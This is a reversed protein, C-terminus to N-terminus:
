EAPVIPTRVETNAWRWVMETGNKEPLPDFTITFQEVPSSLETSPVTYNMVDKEFDPKFYGWKGLEENLGIKWEKENPIAYLRYTGAAVRKGKIEVDNEFTIETAENAGVRWYKGWPQLAGESVKGFIVRGKQFPRCYSVEVNVESGKFSAVEAPSYNRTTAIQYLVFLIFCFVLVGVGKLLLRRM